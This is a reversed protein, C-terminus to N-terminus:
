PFLQMLLNAIANLLAALQGALNPNFGNLLNVVACLLNGLLNGAGPEADITILIPDIHVVLGLLDLDIPGLALELIECVAQAPVILPQNSELFVAPQTISKPMVAGTRGGGPAGGRGHQTDVPLAVAQDTYTTGGVTGTLKGVAVVQGGIAEFREIDLTGSFAGADSSGTVPIDHLPNTQAAAPTALAVGVLSLVGITLRKM